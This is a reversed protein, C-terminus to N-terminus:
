GTQDGSSNKVTGDFDTGDEFDDGFLAKFIDAILEVKAKKFYPGHINIAFAKTGQQLDSTTHAKDCVVNVMASPEPQTTFEPYKRRVKEVDAPSLPMAYLKVEQGGIKGVWERAEYSSIEAQLLVKLDHSM